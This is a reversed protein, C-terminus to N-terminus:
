SLVNETYTYIYLIAWRNITNYKQLPFKSFTKQYRLLELRFYFGEIYETFKSLQVLLIWFKGQM